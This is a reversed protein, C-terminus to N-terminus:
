RSNQVFLAASIQQFLRPKSNFAVFTTKNEQQNIRNIKFLPLLIIEKTTLPSSVVAKLFLFYMFVTPVAGATKQQVFFGSENKSFPRKSKTLKFQLDAKRFAKKLLVLVAKM